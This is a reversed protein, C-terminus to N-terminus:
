GQQVGEDLSIKHIRPHGMELDRLSGKHVTGIGLFPLADL